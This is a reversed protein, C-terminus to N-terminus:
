VNEPIASMFDTSNKSFCDAPGDFIQSIHFFDVDGFELSIPIYIHLSLFPLSLVNQSHNKRYFM